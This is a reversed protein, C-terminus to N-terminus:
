KVQIPYFSQNPKHINYIKAVYHIIKANHILKTQSIMNEIMKIQQTYM